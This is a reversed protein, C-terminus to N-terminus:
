PRNCRYPIEYTTSVEVGQGALTKLFNPYDSPTFSGYTIYDSLEDPNASQDVAELLASAAEDDGLITYTLWETTRDYDDRGTKYALLRDATVRADELRREACQQRLTALLRADEELDSNEIMPLLESAGDIDLTHLLLRQAQYLIAVHDGFLEIAERAVRRSRADDGSWRLYQLASNAILTNRKFRDFNEILLPELESFRRMDALLRTQELRGEVDNPRKELYEGIRRIAVAYNNEQM